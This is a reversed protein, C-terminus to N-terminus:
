KFHYYTQNLYTAVDTIDDDFWKLGLAQECRSVQQNLGDLTNVRRDPRIYVSENHCKTCNGAVLTKGNDLNAAPLSSAATLLSVTICMSPISKM